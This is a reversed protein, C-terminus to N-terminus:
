RSLPIIIGKAFILYFKGTCKQPSYRLTAWLHAMQQASTVHTHKPVIKGSIKRVYVVCQLACFTQWSCHKQLVWSKQTLGIEYSCLIEAPLQLWCKKWTSFGTLYLVRSSIGAKKKVQTTPMLIAYPWDTFPINRLQCLLEFLVLNDPPCESLFTAATTLLLPPTSVFLFLTPLAVPFM